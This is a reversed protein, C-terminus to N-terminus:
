YKTEMPTGTFDYNAIIVPFRAHVLQNAFNELGADFDHNGMTVADYGMRSMAKIEPEGKYLNFYPTGQFIDGADLLLVQETQARISQI